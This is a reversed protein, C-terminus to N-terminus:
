DRQAVGGHWRHTHSWTFSGDAMEPGTKCTADEDEPRLLSHPFSCISRLNIAYIEGDNPFYIHALLFHLM